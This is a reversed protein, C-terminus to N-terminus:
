KGGRSRKDGKTGPTGNKGNRGRNISAKTMKGTAHDYDKGDGNGYTGAERNKKVLESRRKREEPRKNIEKQSALKKRYSEPNDRYYDMSSKGKSKSPMSIYKLYM